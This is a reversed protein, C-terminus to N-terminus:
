WGAWRTRTRGALVGPAGLRRGVRNLTGISLTGRGNRGGMARALLATSLDGRPTLDTLFSSLRRRSPVRGKMMMAAGAAVSGPMTRAPGTRLLTRIAVAASASNEAPCWHAITTTTTKQNTTM